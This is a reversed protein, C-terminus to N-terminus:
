DITVKRGTPAILIFTNGDNVTIRTKETNTHRYITQSERSRKEWTIPVAYGDTILWGTGEGINNISLRGSSDITTFPVNYVIINRATYQAETVADIHKVAEGNGRTQSRMFVSKESNFIFLTSRSASFEVLINNAPIAGTMESIEIPEISYNLLLPHESTTRFGFHAKATMIREMSTFATHESPLRLTTDRWFGPGYRMGDIANIRMRSIDTLAQPSGGFHTYSADNEVVYDLYYPRASRVSGIRETTAERYIALLRTYGGEVPMEYVIYADQLGSQHGWVRDINNFMVAVNRADSNLNVIQLQPEEKPEEKEEKPEEPKTQLLIYGGVGLGIVLFITLLILLIKKKKTRIKKM